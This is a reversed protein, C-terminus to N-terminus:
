CPAFSPLNGASLAQSRVFFEVQMESIVYRGEIRSATLRGEEIHGRVAESSLSLREAVEEITMLRIRRDM